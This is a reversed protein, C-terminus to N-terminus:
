AADEGASFAVSSPQHRVRDIAAKAGQKPMVLLVRSLVGHSADAYHMSGGEGEM